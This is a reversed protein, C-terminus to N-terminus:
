INETLFINTFNDNTPDGGDQDQHLHTLGTMVRAGGSLGNSTEM